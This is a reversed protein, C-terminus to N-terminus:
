DKSKLEELREDVANRVGVRSKGGEGFEAALIAELVQHNEAEKIFKAAKGVNGALAESISKSLGDEVIGTVTEPDKNPDPPPPPEPTKTPKTAPGVLEVQSGYVDRRSAAEEASMEVIDEPEVSLFQGGEGDPSARWLSHKGRLVRYKAM